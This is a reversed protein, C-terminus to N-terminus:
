TTESSSCQIKTKKKVPHYFSTQRKQARKEEIIKVRGKPNKNLYAKQIEYITNKTNFSVVAASCRGQYSGKLAFNIRKGGIFKAIVNNFCEVANTDVDEILSRSKTAVSSVIANIRFMFISNQVKKLQEHDNTEKICFYEQCMRHDGFAHAVCNIIDNYLCSIATKPQSESVKHHRISQVIQMSMIKVNTLM